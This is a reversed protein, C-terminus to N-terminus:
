LTMEKVPNQLESLLYTYTLRGFSEDNFFSRTPSILAKTSKHVDYKEMLFNLHWVQNTILYWNVDYLAM